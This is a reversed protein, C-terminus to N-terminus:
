IGINWGKTKFENLQKQLTKVNIVIMDTVEKLDNLVEKRTRTHAEKKNISSDNFIKGTGTFEPISESIISQSKMMSSQNKIRKGPNNSVSFQHIEDTPILSGHLKM